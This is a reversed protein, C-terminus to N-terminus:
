DADRAEERIATIEEALGSALRHAMSRPQPNASRLNGIVFQMASILSERREREERRVEDLSACWGCHGTAMDGGLDDTDSVVCAAPHTCGGIPERQAATAALWLKSGLIELVTCVESFYGSEDAWKEFTM